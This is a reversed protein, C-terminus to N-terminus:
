TARRTRQLLCSIWLPRLCTFRFGHGLGRADEQVRGIPETKFLDGALLEQWRRLLTSVSEADCYFVTFIIHVVEHNIKVFHIKGLHNYGPSPRGICNYDILRRINNNKSYFFPSWDSKRSINAALFLPDSAGNCAEM